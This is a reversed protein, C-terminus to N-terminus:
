RLGKTLHTMPMRLWDLVRWVLEASCNSQLRRHQMNRPVTHVSWRPHQLPWTAQRTTERAALRLRDSRETERVPNPWAPLSSGGRPRCRRAAARGGSWRRPVERGESYANAWDHPEMRGPDASGCLSGRIYAESSHNAAVCVGEANGTLPEDTSRESNSTPVKTM